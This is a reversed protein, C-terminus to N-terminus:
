NPIIKNLKPCNRLCIYLPCKTMNEPQEYSRIFLNGIYPSNGMKHVGRLCTVLFPTKTTEKAAAAYGHPTSELM